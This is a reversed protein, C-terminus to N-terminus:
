RCVISCDALLWLFMKNVDRKKRKKLKKWTKKYKFCVNDFAFYSYVFIWHFTSKAIIKISKPKNRLGYQL